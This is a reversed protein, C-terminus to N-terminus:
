GSILLVEPDVILNPKRASIYFTLNEYWVGQDTALEEVLRDFDAKIADLTTSSCNPLPDEAHFWMRGNWCNKAENITLCKGFDVVDIGVNHFGANTLMTHCREITGLPYHLNPLEVGQRRCAQRIQPTFFSNESSAGFCIAGGPKLWDYWRALTAPINPFLVIASSCYIRDFQGPDPNYTAEDIEILQINQIQAQDIKAQAQALYAATIDIGIVSGQSGVIPSAAIAVFGTGTAVDLIAQGPHPPAYQLHRVARDHTHDNDYDTRDTYFTTIRQQYPTLM